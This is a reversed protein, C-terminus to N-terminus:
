AITRPMVSRCTAAYTRGSSTPTEMGTTMAKMPMSGTTMTTMTMTTIPMTTTTMTTMSRVKMSTM